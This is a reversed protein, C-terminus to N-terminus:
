KNNISAIYDLNYAHKLYLFTTLNVLSKVLYILAQLISIVKGLRWSEFGSGTNSSLVDLGKFKVDFLLSSSILRPTDFMPSSPILGAFISLSSSSILGASISLYLDTFGFKVGRFPSSLLNNKVKLSTVNLSDSNGAPM